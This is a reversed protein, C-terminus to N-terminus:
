QFEELVELFEQGFRELKVEGIGNITLLESKDKPRYQMMEM